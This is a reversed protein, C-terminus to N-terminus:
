IQPEPQPGTVQQMKVPICVWNCEILVWEWESNRKGSALKDNFILHVYQIGFKQVENAFYVIVSFIVSYPLDTGWTTKVM